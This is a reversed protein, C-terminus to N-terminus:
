SKMSYKLNAREASICSEMPAKPLRMCSHKVALRVRARIIRKSDSPIIVNWGDMWGEKRDETRHNKVLSIFQYNGSHIHRIKWSM